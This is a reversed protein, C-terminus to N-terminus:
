REGSPRCIVPLVSLEGAFVEIEEGLVSSCERGPAELETVRYTGPHMSPIVFPGSDSVLYFHSGSSEVIKAVFRMDYPSGDEQVDIFLTGSDSCDFELLNQGAGIDMKRSETQYYAEDAEFFYEYHGTPIGSIRDMGDLARAHVGFCLPNKVDQILYVRGILRNEDLGLSLVGSTGMVRVGIDGFSTVRPELVVAVEALRDVLRELQLLEKRPSYGPVEVEYDIPGIAPADVESVALYQWRDRNGHGELLGHIELAQLEPPNEMLKHVASSAKPGAGFLGLATRPPGGRRDELRIALGYTYLLRLDVSSRGRIGTPRVACAAGSSVASLTYSTDPDVDTFRYTGDSRIPAVRLPPRAPSAALTRFAESEVVVGSPWAFAFGSRCPLDGPLLVSGTIASGSSGSSGLVTRDGDSPKAPAILAPDVERDARTTQTTLTGTGARGSPGDSLLGRYLLFAALACGVWVAGRKM